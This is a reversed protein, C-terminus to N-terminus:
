KLVGSSQKLDEIVCNSYHQEESKNDKSFQLFASDKNVLAERVSFAWYYKM